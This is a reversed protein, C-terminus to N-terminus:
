SLNIESADMCLPLWLWIQHKKNPHKQEQLLALNLKPNLLAASYSTVTIFVDGETNATYYFFLNVSNQM